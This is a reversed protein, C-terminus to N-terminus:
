SLERELHGLIAREARSIKSGMGLVGGSAEAVRHARDMIERRVIGLTEGDLAAALTRVYSRWTELLDRDPKETLRGQLISHSADGPTLEYSEAAELVAAREKEDVSGNAWAVLVLPTLSIAAVTEPTLGLKEFRRLVAEDRIGWVASLTRGGDGASQARIAELIARRDLGRYFSETLTSGLDALRSSPPSATM